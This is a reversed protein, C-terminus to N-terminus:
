MERSPRIQKNLMALALITPPWLGVFNAFDKRGLLRLLLSLAMSGFTAYVYVNAPMNELTSMIGQPTPDQQVDQWAQRTQDALRQTSERTGEAAQGAMRTATERAAQAQQGAQGGAEGARENMNTAM